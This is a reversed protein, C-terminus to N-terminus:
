RIYETEYKNEKNKNFIKIMCEKDMEWQYYTGRFHPLSNPIISSLSDNNFHLIVNNTLVILNKINGTEYNAKISPLGKNRNIEHTNSDYKKDYAGKLIEQDSKNFFLDRTKKGFKKNLTKLIGHGVDVVNFIVKENEFKIGFLWQKSSKGWEISNGCIEKLLSNLPLCFSDENLIHKVTSKISNSMTKIEREQLKGTGSKFVMVSSNSKNQIKQGNIDVFQSVLGSEEIFKNCKIDIPREAKLGINKLNFHNSIATLVSIAGYDIKNIEKLSIIVFKKGKINSHNKFHRVNYFFELCENTNEILRFDKPAVIESKLQYISDKYSSMLPSYKKNRKKSSRNIKRKNYKKQKESQYVKKM